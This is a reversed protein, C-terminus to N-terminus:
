HRIRPDIVIYVLDLLLYLVAIFIATVIAFGTIPFYDSNVISQVAYEGLGGWSFVTEVLVAGGLLFSYNFAVVTVVPALANRLAYRMIVSQPLGCAQAYEIFESQMVETMTSRAMKVINGMYILTLTLVPLILHKASLWLTEWNGSFLSDLLFFGTVREPPSGLAGLRGIPAPAWRLLFFFVFVLILGLWFDPVAGTLMGYVFVIKSVIGTRRLAVYIGLPIGIIITLLMSVTILELTAPFRQKLDALVSQGTFISDGLEGQFLNRLYIAYQVPLPQDLGLQREIAEVTDKRANAGALAQAPNGPILRVLFFLVTVVGVLQIILYFARQLLFRATAM